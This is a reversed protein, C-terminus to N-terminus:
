LVTTRKGEITFGYDNGEINEAVTEDKNEYDWALELQKYIWDMADRALEVLAAEHEERHDERLDTDDLSVDFETCYKHSYHGRHKVSFSAEPFKEAIVQFGRAIRHLEEDNPAHAKMLEEGKLAESAAWTGVFCAGDGQSSFGSWYVSKIKLGCTAFCQQADEEVSEAFFNDGASSERFWDRAKAKAKDSLEAYSYVEITIKKM